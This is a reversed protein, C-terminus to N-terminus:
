RCTPDVNLMQRILDHFMQHTTDSEPIKFNGNVIALKASDEFPHRHFCLVYLLCGLAWIDASTDVPHNSWTDLMEPARYMPTTHKAMEEELFTRQNMTWDPNPRFTESTASGFDCLKIKKMNKDILLNELKLDRHILPPHAAHLASVADMVQVFIKAVTAPPYPQTRSQLLNSLVNPCYEMLVLFEERGNKSTSAATIFGVIHDHNSLTKLITIEQIIQKKKEQDVALLRKLAYKKDLPNDMDAAEYVFAFGGEGIRRKVVVKTGGVDVISGVLPDSGTGGGDMQDLTADQGVGGLYDLASKLM